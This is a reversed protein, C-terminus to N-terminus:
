GYTLAKPAVYFAGRQKFRRRSFLVSSDFGGLGCDARLSGIRELVGARSRGHIMCFLNFPWDPLARQRRYCLTVGPERALRM